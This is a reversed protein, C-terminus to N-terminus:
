SSVTQLDYRASEINTLSTPYQCVIQGYRLALLRKGMAHTVEEQKQIEVKKCLM